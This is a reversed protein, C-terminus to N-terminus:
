GKKRDAWFFDYGALVITLAIVLLLDTHPVWIGLIAISAALLAFAVIKIITDTM